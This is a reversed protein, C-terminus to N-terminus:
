VVDFDIEKVGEIVSASGHYLDLTKSPDIPDIRKIRKL